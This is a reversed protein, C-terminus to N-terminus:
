LTDSVPASDSPLGVAGGPGTDGTFWGQAYAPPQVLPPPPPPEGPPPQMAAMEEPTLEQKIIRGLGVSLQTYREVDPAREAQYTDLVTDPLRGQMVALLKWCLNFADRIGSQMGAGAWPPMLHAADGVLFVRGSRWHEAHRVHHNYFAHQHIAVDDRTVGMTGLLRWLQDHTSFDAESEHPELPLEWRHNGLGLAIDVVPRKKDSWMTLIHRNPWWRKVKTDIVVWRTALTDGLMAIGLADRVSSSGGDCALAYRARTTTKAGTALDTATITVGTEDQVVAVVEYGYKITVHEAFREAGNRLTQEMVPQYISYSSAYGLQGPQMVIQNLVQGDFTIWRLSHTIDLDKLLAEALGVSQFCRLTWDNITVARARQYIDKAREFIVTKVGEHGLINAASVGSPGYGIIAIDADFSPDAM